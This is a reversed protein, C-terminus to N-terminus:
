NKKKAPKKSKEGKAEKKTVAKKKTPPKEPLTETLSEIVAIGEDIEEVRGVHISKERGHHHRWM